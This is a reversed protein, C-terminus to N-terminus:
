PELERRSRVREGQALIEDATMGDFRDRVRRALDSASPYVGHVLLDDLAFGELAIEQVASDFAQQEADSLSNRVGQFSAEFAGGSSSDVRPADCGAALLILASGVALRWGHTM